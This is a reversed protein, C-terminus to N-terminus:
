SPIRLTTAPAFGIITLFPISHATLVRTSSILLLACFTSVLAFIACTAAIEEPSLSTPSRMASAISFTPLSPTIVTSSDLDM